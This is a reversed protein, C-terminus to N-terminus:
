RTARRELRYITFSETSGNTSTTLFVSEPGAPDIRLVRQGEIALRELVLGGAEFRGVMLGGTPAVMLLENRAPDGGPLVALGVLPADKTSTEYSQWQLRESQTGLPQSTEGLGITRLAANGAQDLGALWLRLNGADFALGRPEVYGRAFIPPGLDASWSLGEASFRVIEGAYADQRRATRDGPVAIYLRGQNDQATQPEGASPLPIDPVLAHADGLRNDSERLRTVGVVRGNAANRVIVIRVSRTREFDRDVLVAAVRVGIDFGSLAPNALLVGDVLTRLYRGDEVFLLRGDPLLAPSSLPVPRTIQRHLDFCTAMSESCVSARESVRSDSTPSGLDGDVIIRGGSMTVLLPSSKRSESGDITATLELTHVGNSM